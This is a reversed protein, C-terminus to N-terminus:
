YHLRIDVSRTNSSSSRTSFQGSSLQRSELYAFAESIVNPDIYIFQRSRCMVALVYSTLLTKSAFGGDSRRFRM